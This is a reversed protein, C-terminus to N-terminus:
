PRVEDDREMRDAIRKLKDRIDANLLWNLVASGITILLIDHLKLEVWM